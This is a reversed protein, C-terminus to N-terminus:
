PRDRWHEIALTVLEDGRRRRTEARRAVDKVAGLLRPTAFKVFGGRGAPNYRLASRVLAWNVESFIEEADVWGPARAIGRAAVEVGLPYFRAALDRQAADLPGRPRRKTRTTM